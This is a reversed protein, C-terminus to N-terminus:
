GGCDFTQGPDVPVVPTQDVGCHDDSNEESMPLVDGVCVDDVCGVEVVPAICDNCDNDCYPWAAGAAGFDDAHVVQVESLCGNVVVCCDSNKTCAIPTATIAAWETADGHCTVGTSTTASSGGGSGTTVSGTSNSGTTAGGGSGTTSDSTGGGGAGGGVPTSSTCAVLAVAAICSLFGLSRSTFSNRM